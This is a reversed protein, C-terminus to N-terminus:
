AASAPTEHGGPSSAMMARALMVLGAFLVIYGTLTVYSFTSLAGVLVLITGLATIRGGARYAPDTRHLQTAMVLLGLFLTAPGITHVTLSIIPESRLAAFFSSLAAGDLALAWAVMDITLQGAIALSGILALTVPTRRVMQAVDATFRASMGWVLPVWAVNAVFLISHGIMWVDNAGSGVNAVLVIWGIILLGPGLGVLAM